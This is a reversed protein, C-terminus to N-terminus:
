GHSLKRDHHQGESKAHFPTSRGEMKQLIKPKPKKMSRRATKIARRICDVRILYAVLQTIQTIFECEADRAKTFEDSTLKADVSQLMQILKPDLIDRKETLEMIVDIEAKLASQLM